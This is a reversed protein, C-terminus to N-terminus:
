SFLSRDFVPQKTVNCYTMFEHLTNWRDSLDTFSATPVPFAWKDAYGERYLHLHPGAIETDDPNRHPAGNLDLRALIFIQRTRTQYTVKELSIYSRNVDLLFEERKDLSALRVSVKGGLDPLPTRDDSTRHKELALLTDAESQSLESLM